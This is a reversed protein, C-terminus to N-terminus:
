EQTNWNNRLWMEKVKLIQFQMTWYPLWYTGIINLHILILYIKFHVEETDM